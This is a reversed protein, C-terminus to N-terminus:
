TMIELNIMSSLVAMTGGFFAASSNFYTSLAMEEALPLSYPHNQGPLFCSPNQAEAM